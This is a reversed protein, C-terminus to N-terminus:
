NKGSIKGGGELKKEELEQVKFFCIVSSFFSGHVLANRAVAATSSVAVPWVGGYPGPHGVKVVDVMVVVVAWLLVRRQGTAASPWVAVAEFAAVGGATDGIEDPFVADGPVGLRGTPKVFGVAVAGTPRPRIQVPFWQHRRPVRPAAPIVPYFPWPQLIAPLTVPVPRVRRRIERTRRLAPLVPLQHRLSPSAVLKGMRQLRATTTPLRFCVPRGHHPLLLLPTHPQARRPSVPM